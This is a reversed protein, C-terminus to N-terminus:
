QKNMQKIFKADIGRIRMELLKDVPVHEYGADRLERIFQPTVNHIRMAVLDDAAVNTYGLAALERIFEPTVRHIRFAILDDFAVNGYGLSKMEGIFEPTAGHIRSAVLDDLSLHPYGAARMERMYDPTVKHIRSAILDDADIHDYGLSRFQQVLEPTVSFIRMSLYKEASEHYGAGQMSRIYDTSVDLLAMTLLHDDDRDADEYNVGLNRLTAAYNHNPTFTFQGAGFGDKFTGEFAVDGAERHLTFAVPTQTTARLAAVNLQSLDAVPMSHGFTHNHDHTSMNMQVHDQDLAEATWAGRSNASATAAFLIVAAISALTRKM